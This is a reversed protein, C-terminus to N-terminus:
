KRPKLEQPTANASHRRFTLQNFMEYLIVSTAVSVNLSDLQGSMPISVTHTCLRACEEPMGKRESGILLVTPQDYRHENYKVAAGPATGVLKLDNEQIWKAFESTNTRAFTLSFISGMSARITAPDFPDLDDGIFIIGASGVADATRMITGLNGPSRIDTFALWCLGQKPQINSLRRVRHRAVIGLGQPADITVLSHYVEATVNLVPIGSRSAKKILHKGYVSKLIRPAAVITEIHVGCAIARTAFRVGDTFFKGCEMRYKRQQLDRVSKIQPHNRKNLLDRDNKTQIEKIKHVNPKKM